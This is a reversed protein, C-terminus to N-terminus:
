CRGANQGADDDEIPLNLLWALVGVLLVGAVAFGVAVIGTWTLIELLLQM